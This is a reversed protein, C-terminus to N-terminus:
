QTIQDFLPTTLLGDAPLGNLKQYARLRERTHNGACGTRLEDPLNLKAQLAKVKVPSNVLTADDGPRAACEDAKRSAPAQQPPPDAPQAATVTVSISKSLSGSGDRITLVAPASGTVTNATLELVTQGAEILLAGTVAGPSGGDISFTPFGVQSRITFRHRAKEVLSVASVDPTVGLSIQLQPAACDGASSISQAPSAAAAVQTALAASSEAAAAIAQMLNTQTGNDSRAAFSDTRLGGDRAVMTNPVVPPPTPLPRSSIATQLQPLLKISALVAAPEPDAKRAEVAVSIGIEKIAVCFQTGLEDMGRRLRLADTLTDKAYNEVELAHNLLRESEVSGTSREQAETRARVLTALNTRQADIAQQLEMAALPSEFPAFAKRACTLSKAGALYVQERPAATFNQAVAYAGAGGLGLAAISRASGTGLAGQFMAAVGLPIGAGVAWQRTNRERDALKHYHRELAEAARVADSLTPGNGPDGGGSELRVTVVHERVRVDPTARTSVKLASGTGCYLALASQDGEKARYPSLSCGGLLALGIATLLSIACRRRGAGGASRLFVIGTAAGSPKQM